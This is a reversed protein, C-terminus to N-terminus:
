IVLSTAAGPGEAFIGLLQRLGAELEVRSVPAGLCVRVGHPVEQRGVAFSEAAAVRVGSRAAEASFEHARWPEPLELWYHFGGRPGVLRAAGTSGTAGSAGCAPMEDFVRFLIDARATMELRKAAILEEAGAGEILIAAAEALLPSVMWANTCVAASLAASVSEPGRVWGIRLAPALVKSLSTIFFSRDRAFDSLPKPADDLMARYIDDEVIWVDHRKAIAAIEKRRGETMVATTPNQLTPTCYLARPSHTRCAADFSEPLLGEDDMAVGELRLQLLDAVWKVGPYTLEECLICDGPRAVVSLVVAIANQAGSTMVIEDPRADGGLKEIWRAGTVRQRQSSGSTQYALLSALDPSNALELLTRRLIDPRAELPPVALSLDIPPAPQAPDLPDAPAVAGTRGRLVSAFGDDAGRAGGGGRVFTGRGVEGSVLCRLKAEAYARSVTGVTVGLRDALARHTPLREGPSLTGSAIDGALREVIARYIPGGAVAPLKPNWITM